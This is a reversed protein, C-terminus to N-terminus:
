SRVWHWDDADEIECITGVRESSPATPLRLMEQLRGQLDGAVGRAAHSDSVAQTTPASERRTEDRKFATM